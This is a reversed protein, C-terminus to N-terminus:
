RSIDERSLPRDIVLGEGGLVLEKEGEMKIWVKKIGPVETITYVIQGIM